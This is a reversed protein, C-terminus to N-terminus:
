RLLDEMSVNIDQRVFKIYFYFNRQKEGGGKASWRWTGFKYRLWAETIKLLSIHFLFFLGPFIIPHPSFLKRDLRMIWSFLYVITNNKWVFFLLLIYLFKRFHNYFLNLNKYRTIRIDDFNIWINISNLRRTLLYYLIM